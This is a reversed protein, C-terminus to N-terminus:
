PRHLKFSSSINFKISIYRKGLITTGGPGGLDDMEEMARPVRAIRAEARQLVEQELIAALSPHGLAVCTQQISFLSLKETARKSM